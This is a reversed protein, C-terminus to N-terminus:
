KKAAPSKTGGKPGKSKPREKEPGSEFPKAWYSSASPFANRLYRNTLYVEHSGEKRLYSEMFGTGAKGFYFHALKKGSADFLKLQMGSANVEFYGHRKPNNGVMSVLETDALIDLAMNIKGSDAPQWETKEATPAKPDAAEVAKKMETVFPGVKWDQNEKKLHVGDLLHEIEINAILSNDLEPALPKGIVDGKKIETPRLVFWVVLTLLSVVLLYLTPRPLPKM